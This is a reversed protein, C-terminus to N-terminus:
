TLEISIFLLRFFFYNFFLNFFRLIELYKAVIYIYIYQIYNPKDLESYICSAM